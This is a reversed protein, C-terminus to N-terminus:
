ECVCRWCFFRYCTSISCSFSSLRALVDQRIWARLSMQRPFWWSWESLRSVSRRTHRAPILSRVAFWLFPWLMQGRTFSHLSVIYQNCIHVSLMYQNCLLSSQRRGFNHSRAGVFLVSCVVVQAFTYIDQRTSRQLEPVMDGFFELACHYIFMLITSQSTRADSALKMTIWMCPSSSWWSGVWESPSPIVSRNWQVSRRCPRYFLPFLVFM